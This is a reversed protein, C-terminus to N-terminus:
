QLKSCVGLFTPPMSAKVGTYLVGFADRGCLDLVKEKGRGEQVGNM